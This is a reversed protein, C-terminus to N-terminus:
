PLDTILTLLFVNPNTADNGYAKESDMYKNELENALFKLDVPVFNGREDINGRKKIQYDLTALIHIRHDFYRMAWETVKDITVHRLMFEVRQPYKLKLIKIQAEDSVGMYDLAERTTKPKFAKTRIDWGKRQLHTRAIMRFRFYPNNYFPATQFKAYIKSAAPRNLGAFYLTPLTPFCAPTSYELTDIIFTFRDFGHEYYAQEFRFSNLDLLMLSEESLHPITLLKEYKDKSQESIISM